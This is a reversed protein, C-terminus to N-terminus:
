IDGYEFPQEPFNITKHYPSQGPQLEILYRKVDPNTGYAGPLVVWLRESEVAEKNSPKRKTFYQHIYNKNVTCGLLNLTKNDPSTFLPLHELMRYKVVLKLFAGSDVVTSHCNLLLLALEHSSLQSRVIASYERAQEITLVYQEGRSIHKLIQYLNRFYHGLVYNHKNQLDDKYVSGLDKIQGTARSLADLIESFVARGQHINNSNENSSSSSLSTVISKLSSLYSGLSHAKQSETQVDTNDLFSPIISPDFRLQQVINNHLELMNFFTNEFALLRSAKLSIRQMVVTIALGIVTFFGLIPNLVGGFFDGFSGLYPEDITEHAVFNIILLLLILLIIFICFYFLLRILGKTTGDLDDSKGSTFLGYLWNHMITINKLKSPLYICANSAGSSNLTRAPNFLLCTSVTRCAFPGM